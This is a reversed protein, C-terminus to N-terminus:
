RKGPSHKTQRPTLLIDYKKSENHQNEFDIRQDKTMFDLFVSKAAQKQFELDSQKRHRGTALM